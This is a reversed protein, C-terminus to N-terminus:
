NNENQKVDQWELLRLPSSPHLYIHKAFDPENVPTIVIQYGVKGNNYRYDSVTYKLPQKKNRDVAHRIDKDDSNALYFAVLDGLLLTKEDFIREQEYFATLPPMGKELLLSLKGKKYLETRIVFLTKTSTSTGDNKYSFVDAIRWRVKILDGQSYTKTLENQSVFGLSDKLKHALIMDQKGIKQKTIYTYIGNFIGNTEKEDSLASNANIEDQEANSVKNYM